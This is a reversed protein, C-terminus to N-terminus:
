LVREFERTPVLRPSKEGASNGGCGWSKHIEVRFRPFHGSGQRLAECHPRRAKRLGDHGGCCGPRKPKPAEDNGERQISIAYVGKPPQCDAATAVLIRTHRM